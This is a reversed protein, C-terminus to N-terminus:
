RHLLRMYKFIAENERRIFYAAMEFRDQRILFGTLSFDTFSERWSKYGFEKNWQFHYESNENRMFRSVGM